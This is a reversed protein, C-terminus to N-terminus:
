TTHSPWILNCNISGSKALLATLKCLTLLRLKGILPDQHLKLLICCGAAINGSFKAMIKVSLCLSRLIYFFDATVEISFNYVIKINILVFLLYIILTM